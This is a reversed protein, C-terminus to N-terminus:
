DDRTDQEQAVHGFRSKHYFNDIRKQEDHAFITNKELLFVFFRMKKEKKYATTRKKKYRQLRYIFLV